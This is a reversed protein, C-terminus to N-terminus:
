TLRMVADAAAAGSRVASELTGPYDSATYDGALFLGREPTEVTPRCVGPVCSYTARREVIVRSWQPPSAPASLSHRSLEGRLREDISQGLAANSLAEHEGSASIVCAILGQPGGLQGRDFAWQLLGDTFGLMPSPLRTEKTYGLYCTAIPEYNFQEITERVSALSPFAPLLAAAHQPAVALIVADFCTEGSDVRWGPELAHLQRVPTGLTITGGHHEIFRAAPDPLLRGLDVNPILLDSNVRAGTLGDRLVHAFVQASARTIPTNLASVCLPEWLHQIVNAPQRYAALFSAVDLDPTVRFGRLQLAVMLRTAALAEAISLGRAAFLAAGLNFPYPIRPARMHFGDAFQLDLPVRRLLAEPEVGLFRMFDLCARYAGILIHQGNDLEHGELEVRRARGGLSRSAEYVTVGLGRDALRAAASLGAWGGGIVAVRKVTNATL